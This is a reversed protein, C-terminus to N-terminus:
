GYIRCAAYKSFAAARRDGLQLLKTIIDPIYADYKVELLTVPEGPTLMPATEDFLDTKYLGTKLDFDFTVRVNGPPYIYAERTYQVITKPRLQESLMKAYLERVLPLDIARIAPLDCRIIAEAQEQTLVEGQKYGLGSRKSKKELRILREGGRYTRIRFKERRDVGDIKEMLAKDNLNDFYLSRIIYRGNADSHPDLRMVAKLRGRLLIHDAPNIRHKLETRYQM